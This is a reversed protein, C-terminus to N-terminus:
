LFKNNRLCVRGKRLYLGKMFVRSFVPKSSEEIYKNLEEIRTGPIM